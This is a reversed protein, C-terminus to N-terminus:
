DYGQRCGWCPPCFPSPPSEAGRGQEPSIGRPTRCGARSGETCYLCPGTPAPGSSAVPVIQPSSDRHQSSLSLSNPAQHLSPELSVKNCGKLIHLPSILFIPLSTKGRGTIVPCPAVNKLQFLTPKSQAYPPFKKVTLSSPCQFPNGLSATSIGDNSTNLTLNSPTKNAAQDLSVHKQVYFHLKVLHVEFTGELGFWEIIRHVALSLYLFM